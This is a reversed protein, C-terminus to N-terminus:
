RRDTKRPSPSRSRRTAAPTHVVANRTLNALVQRLQEPDGSCRSRDPRSPRSRVTPPLPARTRHPTSPSSADSRSRGAADRAARRPARAAASERRPRGDQDGRSRDTGDRARGRRARGRGWATCSPTDASRPSRPACSTLRTPSSSACGSRAERQPRRVCARDPRADREAVRGAPRGRHPRNPPVRGASVLDGRPSRARWAASGSSRGCARAPDRGMGARRARPDGGGGVLAEVEILRQLTQDVDHLPVAIVLTRGDKLAFAAARYRLGSGAQRTRGHVPAHRHSSFQSIPLRRPLAPPSAPTEGYTFSHSECSRAARASCSGTPVRPRSPARHAAGRPQGGAPSTAGQPHILTRAGGRRPHRSDGVQQNSGHSCSPASSRTPSSLRPVGLGVAALVVLGILLRARLSLRSMGEPAAARLRRRPGHPAATSRDADVKKRLYSIYTELVRADGGFDYSWVHDLLQARTIVRRPNLM